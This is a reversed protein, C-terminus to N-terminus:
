DLLRLMRNDVLQFFLDPKYTRWNPEEMFTINRDIKSKHFDHQTQEPMNISCVWGGDDKIDEIWEEYYERDSSHFNLVNETVLIFKSIHDKIMLDIVSRKLQMIDNEVADNWEGIMEIIAYNLEYDVFLVKLYLTRSGFEDWQPHIYYNYVTNSFEFESHEIGYFPSQEDEEANYLHRWNYFPEIEHM